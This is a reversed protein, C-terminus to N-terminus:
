AAGGQQALEEQIDALQLLALALARADQAKMHQTLESRVTIIPTGDTPYREIGLEVSRVLLDCLFREHGYYDRKSADLLHDPIYQQLAPPTASNNTAPITSM